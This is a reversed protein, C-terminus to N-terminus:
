DNPIKDTARTSDLENGIVMNSKDMREAHRVHVNGNASSAGQDRIEKM